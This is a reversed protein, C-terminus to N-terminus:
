IRDLVLQVLEMVRNKYDVDVNQQVRGAIICCVTLARHGALGALGALAASEMEFNTIQQEDCRFAEIKRNLDPDAPPLRLERGQPGYFGNAAITLGRVIDNGAIQELLDPDSAVVYPRVGEIRWRLQVLLEKELSLDRIRENNKYFYIVGDLGISKEAAVFTGVPVFPQLGGSTGIRVLTLKRPVPRLTRTRFDINALADLENLVIDINDGGIGHSVVSLRKGRYSGTVSHFERNQIDCELSDLLGAIATVRAPDGVLVIRDALQEPKLHLHFISSDDNVILESSPIIRM